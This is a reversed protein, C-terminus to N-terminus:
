FDLFSGAVAITLCKDDVVKNLCWLNAYIATEIVVALERLEQIQTCWGIQAIQQGADTHIFVFLLLKGYEAIDKGAICCFVLLVVTEVLVDVEVVGVVVRQICWVIFGHVQCEFM